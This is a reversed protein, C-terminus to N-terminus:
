AALKIPVNDGTLPPTLGSEPSPRVYHVYRTAAQPRESRCGLLIRKMVDSEFINGLSVFSDKPANSHVLVEGDHHIIPYTDRRSESSNIEIVTSAEAFIDRVPETCRMFDADSISHQSAVRAAPGLPWYQYISWRAPKHSAVLHALQVLDPANVASIITNLKLRGHLPSLWRLRNCILDFHGPFGRMLDHVKPTSGDLPLGLLDVTTEILEMSAPSERLSRGNTDVHVFLSLSKAIRLLDPAFHHQFPDGGGVTISTFGLDAIRGIISLVEDSDAPASEFPVYCWECNMACRHSFNLIARFPRNSQSV